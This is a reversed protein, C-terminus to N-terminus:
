TGGQKAKLRHPLQTLARGDCASYEKRYEEFSMLRGDPHRAQLLVLRGTEWGKEALIRILRAKFRLGLELPGRVFKHIDDPYEGFYTDHWDIYTELHPVQIDSIAAPYFHLAAAMTIAEEKTEVPVILNHKAPETTRTR